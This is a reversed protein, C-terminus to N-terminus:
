FGVQPMSRFTEETIKGYFSVSSRTGIEMRGKQVISKAKGNRMTARAVVKLAFIRNVGTLAVNEKIGPACLDLVQVDVDDGIVEYGFDELRKGDKLSVTHMGDSRLIYTDTSANNLRDRTELAMVWGGLYPLGLSGGVYAEPVEALFHDQAKTDFYGPHVAEIESRANEKKLGAIMLLEAALTVVAQDGRDSILLIRAKPMDSAELLVNCLIERREALLDLDQAIPWDDTDIVHVVAEGVASSLADTNEAEEGELVVVFDPKWASIVALDVELDRSWAPGHIGQAILGPMMSLGLTMDSRGDMRSIETMSIELPDTESTRLAMNM